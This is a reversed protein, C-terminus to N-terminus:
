EIGQTALIREVHKIDQRRHHWVGFIRKERLHIFVGLTEGYGTHLFIIRLLSLPPHIHKNYVFSTNSAMKAPRGLCKVFMSCLFYGWNALIAQAQFPIRIWLLMNAASTSPISVSAPFNAGIAFPIAHIDVM